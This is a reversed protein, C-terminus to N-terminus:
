IAVHRWAGSRFRWQLILATCGLSILGGTWAGALGGELTIGLTYALPVFVGWGFLTEFLFPWRTDGAGRLAGQTIVAIADFLQFLAGILLLPRGLALVSPDDSFIRMLQGPIAIFLVAVGLALGVGLVLSARFARAVAADDNAGVYRGVLTQAATSIGVAQMFSICLLMLFAQSAAMSSDGMRAILTTFFAFTSTGICWQGGIPLGVRLFRRLQALDPRPLATAFREALAPRLFLAFLIAGGAISSISTALGAGEVGLEPLGLRGFILGYDLVGNLANAFIMVFMPTRTDGFGRFFATLVMMCAMAAEGPLRAMIYSHATSRLEASPVALELLPGILHLVALLVLACLPLVFYLAQWAWAGCERERGSGQYQSVFTQVGSAVGYFFSFITWLWVSGFGVGALETPGLRGVMASDVVMMATASVQQLVVPAALLTVERLGGRSEELGPGIPTAPQASFSM